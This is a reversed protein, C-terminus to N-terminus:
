EIGSTTLGCGPHPIQRIFNAKQGDMAEEVKQTMIVILIFICCMHTGKLAKRHPLWKCQIPIVM